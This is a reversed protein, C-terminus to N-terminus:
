LGKIETTIKQTKIDTYRFIQIRKGIWAASDTGFKDVLNNLNQGRLSTKKIQESDLKIYMQYETKEWKNMGTTIDTITANLPNTTVFDIDGIWNDVKKMEM